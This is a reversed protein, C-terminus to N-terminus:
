AIKPAVALLSISILADLDLSIIMPERSEILKDGREIEDPVTSRTALNLNSPIRRSM